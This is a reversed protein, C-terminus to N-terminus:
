TARPRALASDAAAIVRRFEGVWAGESVGVLAVSRAEAYAGGQLLCTALGLRAPVIGPITQLAERWLPEARACQGAGAYANALMTLALPFGGSQVIALKAEHEGSGLRGEGFLEGAYLFHAYYSEPEDVVSASYLTADDRWVPQRRASRVVGLTLILTGAVAGLIRARRPAARLREIVPSAVAGAVLALGVSALFLSREALLVGSVFLINSVPLLAIAIWLIGFTLVPARRRAALALGLAGVVVLAGAVAAADPGTRIPTGPPSYTAALHAPWVLLRAWEGTIGLMTWGRSAVPVQALLFNPADGLLRGIALYRVGAYAVAVGALTLGTPVLARVRAALPRDDVVVTCEAALLLLPLVAAHEKALLAPVFLVAIAAIPARAPTRASRASGSAGVRVGVDAGIGGAPSRARVYVITAATVALAVLLEAQGVANAVVEVHVPHVAFIAAAAVAAPAPLLRDALRLVLLALAVYLALSALHFVLPAGHGIAWETAFAISTLPRYLGGGLARPWYSTCCVRWAHALDHARPDRVIIPVDDYAFGNGLGTVSSALALAAVLPARLDRGATRRATRGAARGADGVTM